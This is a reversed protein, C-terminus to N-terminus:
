NYRAGFGFIPMVRDKFTIEPIPGVDFNIGSKLFIKWKSGFECIKPTVLLTFFDKKRDSAWRGGYSIALGEIGYIVLDLSFIDSGYYTLVNACFNGYSYGVFANGGGAPILNGSAGAFIQANANSAIIVTVVAIFLCYKKM